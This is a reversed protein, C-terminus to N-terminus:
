LNVSSKKQRAEFHSVFHKAIAELRQKAGAIAELKTLEKNRAEKESDSAETNLDYEDMLENFKEESGSKLKLPIIHSEYFIRVTAHDAVSQTIDYVDIYNGFIAVTSKDATDIPTGTFGIFSANPLADRLYKAYGYRVGNKTLEAQLGYQTRHAEDAMVIVDSRNTLVPM